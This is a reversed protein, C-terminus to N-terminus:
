PGNVAKVEIRMESHLIRSEKSMTSNNKIHNIEPDIKFPLTIFNVGICNGGIIPARMLGGHREKLGLTIM